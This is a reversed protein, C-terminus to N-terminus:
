ERHTLPPQQTQLRVLPRAVASKPITGERKRMFENYLRFHRDALRTYLDVKGGYNVVDAPLTSEISKAFLMALTEAGIGVALDCIADFHSDPISSKRETLEHLATYCVRLTKGTQPTLQLLRLKWVTGDLYLIYDRRSDLYVPIREGKPYEVSVIRSFTVHYDEPLSFEYTSGDGAYDITKLLPADNSYTRLASDLFDTIQGDDVLEESQLGDRIRSIYSSRYIKGM